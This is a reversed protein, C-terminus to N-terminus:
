PSFVIERNLGGGEVAEVANEKTNKNSVSHGKFETMDTGRDTQGDRWIKRCGEM